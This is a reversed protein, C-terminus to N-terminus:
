RYLNFRAMNMMYRKMLQDMDDLIFSSPKFHFEEEIKRISIRPFKRRRANPLVELSCGTLGCIKELLEANSVNVGSAINYINGRCGQSIKILLDVVDDVSIYDKESDLSTRLVIKKNLIADRIISPLFNDSTLDVGYVNSPRVVIINKKSSFSISEGMVKSINLLDSDDLPNVIINDEERAIDLNPEYIRASSLYVFSNFESRQLIRMLKCVHATVTDFPRSMFDSTVGICYIVNGLYKGSLDQNRTPCYHEIGSERLRRALHSGIFGASGLVTIKDM